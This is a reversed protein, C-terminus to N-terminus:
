TLLGMKQKVEKLNKSATRRAKKSGSRLTSELKKPSKMLTSYKKQFPALEKIIAEAVADKLESYRISGNAEAAEFQKVRNDGCARLLMFLNAVGPSMTGPRAATATVAKRIKTRITEPSDTLFLCGSPESKSMKRAPDTLSMIRHASTYLPRPEDFVDGYIRNFRRSIYRAIELHQTQDDGVPVVTPKYILIDAAMLTPYNLLAATASATGHASKDKYQTMRELEGVPVLGGFLWALETHEPVLSQVFITSRKPDLGAALFEAALELVYERRKTVPVDTDLAHEDAIMFFSQYKTQLEVFNKLAGFYNGIHLPGTPRIGSLTTQKAMATYAYGSTNVPALFIALTLSGKFYPFKM